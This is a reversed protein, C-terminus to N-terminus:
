IPKPKDTPRRKTLISKFFPVSFIGDAKAAPANAKQQVPTLCKQKPNIFWFRSQHEDLFLHSFKDRRVFMIIMRLIMNFSRPQITSPVSASIRPRSILKSAVNKWDLLILCLGM